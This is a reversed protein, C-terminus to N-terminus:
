FKLHGTVANALGRTPDDALEPQWPIRRSFNLQRTKKKIILYLAFRCTMGFERVSGLLVEHNEFPNEGEKNEPCSADDGRRTQFCLSCFLFRGYTCSSSGFKSRYWIRWVTKRYSHLAAVGCFSRRNDECSKGWSTGNREVPMCGAFGCHHNAPRKLGRHFTFLRDNGM